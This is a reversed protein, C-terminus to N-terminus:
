EPSEVKEAMSNWSFRQKEEAANRSFLANTEPVFLRAIADAIAAPATDTVYGAKGDPVIESLGGVRTVVMPKDFHYAIQTVGSQTASKYPQVVMDAACFFSVVQEDPIFSDFLKVSEGIGLRKIQELYPQKDTYFEGAVLLVKDKGQPTDLFLAWADLLLDLGKYNRILGFFLAYRKQPDLGIDTCAKERETKEGYNMYLPHPAFAAPKTATFQRLDRKVEESMCIFRDASGIFYRTLWNDWFHREHPVINDTLAVVETHGNTRAIRAITGLAPALYPSWYRLFLIDPKKRRIRLGQALWNFPNVSNIKRSIDLDAPKPSETYQTKGPFLFSPYQVTFTTIEVRNGRAQLTRALMENFSAIGGRYPHATGAFLIYKPTSM